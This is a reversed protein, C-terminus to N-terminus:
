CALGPRDVWSAEFPAVCATASIRRRPRRSDRSSSRFARASRTSTARPSASSAVRHAGGLPHAAGSPRAVRGVLRQRHTGRRVPRVRLGPQRGRRLLRARRHPRRAPLVARGRDRRQGRAAPLPQVPTGRSELWERIEWADTSYLRAALHRRGFCRQHDRAVEWAVFAPLGRAWLLLACLRRPWPSSPRRGARRRRRLALRSRRHRRHDPGDAHALRNHCAPRRRGFRFAIAATRGQRQQANPSLVRPTM